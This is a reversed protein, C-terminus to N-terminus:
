RTKQALEQLSHMLDSLSKNFSEVVQDYDDPRIEVRSGYEDPKLSTRGRLEKVKLVTKSFAEINSSLSPLYLNALIMMQLLLDSAEFDPPPAYLGVSLYANVNNRVKVALRSLEEIVEKEKKRKDQNQTYRNTLIAGIAGGGLAAIFVVINSVVLVIIPDL